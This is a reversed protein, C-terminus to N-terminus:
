LKYSIQLLLRNASILMLSLRVAFAGDALGGDFHYFHPSFSTSNVRQAIIVIFSFSFTAILRKEQQM